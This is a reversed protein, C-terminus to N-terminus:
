PIVEYPQEVGIKALKRLKGTNILASIARSVQGKDSDMYESISTTTAMQGTLTLQEIATLVNQQYYSKVDGVAQWCCTIPDWEVAMDM